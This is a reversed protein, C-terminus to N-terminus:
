DISGSLAQREALEKLEATTLNPLEVVNFEPILKGKMIKKGTTTVAPVFVQCKRSKIHDVLARPVHWGDAADFQVFKKITGIVRNSISFYDGTMAKKNPNMCTVVVRVLVEAEKRAKQAVQAPTLKEKYAHISQVKTSTVTEEQPEDDESSTNNKVADIKALLKDVGINPHYKVGLSDAQLKLTELKTDSM